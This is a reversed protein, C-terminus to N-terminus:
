RAVHVGAEALQACIRETALTAGAGTPHNPTDFFADDPLIADEPSGIVRAGPVTRLAAAVVGLSARNEAAVSAPISPFLVVVFLGRRTAEEAWAGLQAVHRTVNKGVEMRLSVHPAPVRRHGVEDGREDFGARSYVYRGSRRSKLEVAPDVVLRHLAVDPFGRLLPGLDAFEAFRLGSPFRALLVAAQLGEDAVGDDDLIGYEPVVVLVDGSRTLPLAHAIMFNLGLGAHLATNLVPRGAATEIRASDVGFALGSGGVLVIRSGDARELRELKDVYASAYDNTAPTALVGAVIAGTLILLKAASVGFRRGARRHARDRDESLSDPFDM